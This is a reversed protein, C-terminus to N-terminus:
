RARSVPELPLDGLAPRARAGVFAPRRPRAGAPGSLGASGAGPHDVAYDNLARTLLQRATPVSCTSFARPSCARIPARATPSRPPPACNTRGWALLLERDLRAEAGANTAAIRGSVTLIVEGKPAPLRDVAAAPVTAALLCTGCARLLGRRRLMDAEATEEVPLHRSYDSWPPTVTARASEATGQATMSAVADVPPSLGCRRMAIQKGRTHASRWSPHARTEFRCRARM